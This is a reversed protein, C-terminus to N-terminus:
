KISLIASMVGKPLEDVEVCDGNRVGAATGCIRRVAIVAGSAFSRYGIERRLARGV